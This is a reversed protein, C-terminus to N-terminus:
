GSHHLLFFVFCLLVFILSRKHLYNRPKLTHVHRKMQGNDNRNLLKQLPDIYSASCVKELTKVFDIFNKVKNM